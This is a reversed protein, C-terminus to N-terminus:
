ALTAQVGLEAVRYAACRKLVALYRSDHIGRAYLIDTASDLSPSRKALLGSELVSCMEHLPATYM